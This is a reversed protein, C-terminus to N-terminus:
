QGFKPFFFLVSCFSEFHAVGFRGFFTDRTREDRLDYSLFGVNRLRHGHHRSVEGVRPMKHGSTRDGDRCSVTTALLSDKFYGRRLTEIIWLM